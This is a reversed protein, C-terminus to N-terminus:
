LEFNFFSKLLYSYHKVGIVAFLIATIGTLLDVSAIAILYVNASSQHLAKRKKMVFIVFANGLICLILLLGDVILVINFVLNKM